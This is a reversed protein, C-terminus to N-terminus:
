YKAHSEMPIVVALVTCPKPAVAQLCLREDSGWEGPFSVPVQDYDSHVTDAAVPAGDFVQPLDELDDFSRGYQLGTHHTNLLVVGIQDVKRPMTIEGDSQSATALKASRWKATYTRGVIAATVATTIGTIQAGTVTYTGLDKGGGWVVVAEGELHSLDTITTTSVGTYVIHSDAQKNTTAGQCESELAWRELFRVTAGNVVRKVSYYVADEGTGAAGPLVVVDEIAGDTSVIGWCLVNETPDFIALGVKGDSRVCHIRTDPRRQVALRKIYKSGTADSFLDPVLETIDKSGYEGEAADFAIEMVRTGGLQVFIGRKDIKRGAVAASGYTSAPKTSFATPTLPEDFSSAKATYETGQAGILLRQLPLIWNVVDVPGSGVTRNIPGSDGETEADFGEYADSESGWIGQKGAWFLRGDHIAVASPFGRRSSWAGEAWLDTAATDGLDTIVEASVSTASAVATIRAVGDISGVAYDLTLEVTGSTFDGTKVGIRYYIIQNALADDYSITAISTYTTVDEWPGADSDFSRQLTVTAVWTGSRTIQFVRQSGVGTVLIASTFSNEATVSATVTQGSSAIRYLSGVNSATWIPKSGTLTVNGSLASATITAPGTNDARLPGTTPEYLVISWSTTSRREVKRQQYGAAALYVVDGSQDHRIKDLDAAAYPATLSMVGAAEIAVSDVLVQRKLSSLLRVYVSAGTPTFALSHTGTGLTTEGIYEDGGSSSGVRLVVTGRQVVIRLAHEVNQDGSSVSLTQDRIASATGNGTLGLYGGTVWVSTGGSEDSDTWSAVDSTFTGNAVATSVAARTVLADAVWIRLTSETFEMLATDDTAFIFEIHRAALNANSAGIYGLGPRLMMPGLKRAVWNEYTDASLAYRKLDTRALGLGSILGRNFAFFKPVAIAM